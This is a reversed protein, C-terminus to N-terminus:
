NILSSIYCYIDYRKYEKAYMMLRKCERQSPKDTELIRKLIDLKITYPAGTFYKEKTFPLFIDATSLEQDTLKQYCPGEYGYQYVINAIEEVEFKYKSTIYEILEFNDGICHAFSIEHRKIKLSELMIQMLKADGYNIVINFLFGPIVAQRSTVNLYLNYEREFTDYDYLAISKLLEISYDHFDVEAFEFQNNYFDLAKNIMLQNTNHRYILIIMILVDYESLCSLSNIKKHIPMNKSKIAVMNIDAGDQIILKLIKDYNMDCELAIDILKTKIYKNAYYKKNIPLYLSNLFGPKKALNLIESGFSLSHNYNYCFWKMDFDEDKIQFGLLITEYSDLHKYLLDWLDNPLTRDEVERWCAPTDM